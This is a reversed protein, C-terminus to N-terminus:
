TRERGPEAAEWNEWGEIHWRLTRGIALVALYGVWSAVFIQSRQWLSFQRPNDGPKASPKRSSLPRGPNAAEAIKQPSEAM